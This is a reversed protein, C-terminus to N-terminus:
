IKGTKAGLIDVLKLEKKNMNYAYSQETDRLRQIKAQKKQDLSQSCKKIPDHNIKSGNM